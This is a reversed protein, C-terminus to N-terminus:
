TRGIPCIKIPEIVALAFSAVSRAHKTLAGVGCSKYHRIKTVRLGHVGSCEVARQWLILEDLSLDRRECAEALSLLGGRLAAIEPM